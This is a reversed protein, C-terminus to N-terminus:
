TVRILDGSIARRALRLLQLCYLGVVKPSLERGLNTTDFVRPRRVSGDDVDVSTTREIVQEVALRERIYPLYVHEREIRGLEDFPPSWWRRTIRELGSFHYFVLPVGDVMVQGDQVSLSHTGRNWEALGVGPHDVVAVDPYREPWTELYRQDAYKEGEVRDHCWELCNRRWRRLCERGDEDDAFSVFDANFRGYRQKHRQSPSLRHTHVAISADGIREFLLDPSAYFYLDAGLFSIREAGQNELVHLTFAPKCTFYYEILSRDSRAQELGADARELADLPIASAHELGLEEVIRRADDDLCLVHLHFDDAHELLSRYLAAGTTAYNGDFLTCFHHM